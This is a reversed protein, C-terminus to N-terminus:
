KPEPTVEAQRATPEKCGTKAPKAKLRSILPLDSDNGKWTQGYLHLFYQLRRKPLHILYSFSGDPDRLREVKRFGRVKITERENEFTDPAFGEYVGFGGRPSQLRYLDFDPGESYAAVEDAALDLAFFHGCFHMPGKFIREEDPISAFAPVALTVLLILLYRVM